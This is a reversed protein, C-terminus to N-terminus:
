SRPKKFIPIPNMKHLNPKRIEYYTKLLDKEKQDHGFETAIDEDLLMAQEMQDYTLGKLQDKDTRGDEWLGDTPEADIIAQDIKLQKAITYVESKMLDAIPSIDVGGDGYKTYFGVGFDEVKNGTGVVIGKTAGAIQYLTVMRLRSKSNAFAHQNNFDIQMEFKFANYVTDLDIIKHTVNTFQETLWTGHKVSLDHQTNIQKIPMSVAYVPMGTKACLASVVASDIGGSVGVVLTEMSNSVAYDKIWNVINNILQTM